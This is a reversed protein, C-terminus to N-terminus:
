AAKTPKWRREPNRWDIGELLLALQGASLAVADGAEGMMPWAFVGGDLRKTFLCLGTGDWFLIKIVNAKRGRFCFLHGCFPDLKLAEQVLASLGEMGKRMDTHGFAIHVKVGAPAIMM